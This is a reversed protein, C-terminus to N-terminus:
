MPPVTSSLPSVPCKTHTAKSPSLGSSVNSLLPLVSCQGEHSVSLALQLTLLFLTERKSISCSYYLLRRLTDVAKKSM